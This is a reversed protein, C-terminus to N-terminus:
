NGERRGCTVAWWLGAAVPLVADAAAIRTRRPTTRSGDVPANLGDPAARTRGAGRRCRAAAMTPTARHPTPPNSPPADTGASGPAGDLVVAGPGVADLVTRMGEASRTAGSGRRGGSDDTGSGLGWTM